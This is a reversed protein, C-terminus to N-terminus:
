ELEFTLHKNERNNIEIWKSKNCFKKLYNKLYKKTDNSILNDEINFNNYVLAFINIESRRCIELTLLTHNISGLRPSTVIFIPLKQDKIYNLITYNGILPTMIGGAGEILIIDYKQKLIDTAHEIKKLNLRVHDIRAALHPSAPYSLIIPCTTGDIDEPLREIGMIKRHIEIDESFGINGTQVLKQTVVRFGKELYAKALHGTVYSKGINTDIGTVFFVKGNLKKM